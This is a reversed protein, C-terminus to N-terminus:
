KKIKLESIKEVKKEEAKNEIKNEIKSEIKPTVKVEVKPVVKKIEPVYESIFYNQIVAKYIDDSVSKIEKAGISFDISPFLLGNTSKNIIKKM